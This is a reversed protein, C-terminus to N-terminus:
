DDRRLARVQLEKLGSELSSDCDAYVENLLDTVSPAAREALYRRLAEAYLRSRSLGQRHAATDAEDFLDDPISVAVKV